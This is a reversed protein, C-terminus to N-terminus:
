MSDKTADLLESEDHLTGHIEVIMQSKGLMMASLLLLLPLLWIMQKIVPFDDMGHVMSRSSFFRVGTM